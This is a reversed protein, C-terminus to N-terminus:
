FFRETIRIIDGPLLVSHQGVKKETNTKDGARTVRIDKKDARYTYGGAMAIAKLVTIGNVFPYSGPNRVEGLIYFPRYNLVEISVKPEKLIGLRLKEAIAQEVARLTTNGAPVEGILPMSIYGLGDVEFNGSLDREGFVTIRLKDGAGLRYEPQGGQAVAESAAALVILALFGASLLRELTRIQNHAVKSIM